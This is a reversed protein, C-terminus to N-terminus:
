RPAHHSRLAYLAYHERGETGVAVGRVAAIDAGAFAEGGWIVVTEGARIPEAAYM